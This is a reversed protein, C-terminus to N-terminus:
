DAVGAETVGASRLGESNGETECRLHGGVVCAKSKADANDTHRFDPQEGAWCFM